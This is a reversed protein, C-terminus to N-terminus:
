DNCLALGDDLLPGINMKPGGAEPNDEWIPDIEDYGHTSAMGNVAWDNGDVDRFVVSRPSECRLTGESVTLPWEVGYQDASVPKGLEGIDAGCGALV